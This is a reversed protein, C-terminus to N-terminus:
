RSLLHDGHELALTAFVPLSRNLNHQSVPLGLRYVGNFFDLLLSFPPATQHYKTLLSSPIIAFNAPISLICAEYIYLLFPAYLDTTEHEKNRAM